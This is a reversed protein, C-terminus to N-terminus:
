GFPARRSLVRQLAVYHLLQTNAIASIAVESPSIAIRSKLFANDCKSRARESTDDTGTVDRPAFARACRPSGITRLSRVRGVATIPVDSTGHVSPARSAANARSISSNGGKALLELGDLRPADSAINRESHGVRLSSGVTV